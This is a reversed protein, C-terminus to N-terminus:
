RDAEVQETEESGLDIWGALEGDRVVYLNQDDRSHVLDGREFEALLEILRGLEIEKVIKKLTVTKEVETYAM